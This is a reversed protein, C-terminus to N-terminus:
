YAEVRARVAVSDEDTQAAAEGPFAVIFFVPALITTALIVVTALKFVASSGTLRAKM